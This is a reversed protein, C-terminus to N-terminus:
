RGGSHRATIGENEQAPCQEELVTQTVGPCASFLLDRQQGLPPECLPLSECRFNRRAHTIGNMADKAKWMGCLRRGNRVAQVAYGALATPFERVDKGRDWLLRTWKLGYALVEQVLDDREHICRILRFRVQAHRLICPLIALFVPDAPHPTSM